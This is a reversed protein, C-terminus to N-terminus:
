DRIRVVRVGPCNKREKLYDYLTHEDVVVKGHRMSAHMLHLHEDKWIAFGLHTVDLGEITSVLALIDGDRIPLMDPPLNLMEKKIYHIPYAKYKEEISTMSDVAWANAKLFPYNEPHQSMFGLTLTDSQWIETKERPILEYWIERRTNETVWDTFYHLRSLYGEVVGHRYRLAQVQQEFTISDDRTTLWRAVALEVFTTCDMRQEDVILQEDGEKELTGAVYPTNLYRM